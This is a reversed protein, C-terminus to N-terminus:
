ELSLIDGVLLYTQVVYRDAEEKSVNAHSGKQAARFVSDLRDGIFGLNSGVIAAFRESASRSEIYAILRNIYNDAGLKIVKPKGNIEITEDARAPYLADALDQLIRRCSHVANSWDEPNESQLNGYVAALKQIAGPVREGISSDVKERIRSFIDDAIGSYKLEQNKRLVYSHVFTRRSSLREQALSATKRVTDRENKNGMPNFVTQHPNASAISIDPDRAASLNSEFHRTQYELDEVSSTYIYKKVEGSKADKQSFERGALVALRYTDVPVGDPTTPYGSAEYELAKQLEFDNLLRALRSAKLAANALPIECLEINRLVDESLALAERIAQRSPPVQPEAEM